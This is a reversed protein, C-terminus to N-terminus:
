SGKGTMLDYSVAIVSGPNTDSKMTTHKMEIKTFNILITEAPRDGDSTFAYSSVLANTLWLTLYTEGVDGTRVFNLMVDRAMWGVCAELFLKPGSGDMAKSVTVESLAAQSSERNATRGNMTSISRAVGFQVSDIQLWGKHKDHTVDGKIDGYKM